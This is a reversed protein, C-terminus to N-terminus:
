APATRIRAAAWATPPEADGDRGLQAQLLAVTPEALSLRDKGYCSRDRQSRGAEVVERHRARIMSLLLQSAEGHGRGLRRPAEELAERESV